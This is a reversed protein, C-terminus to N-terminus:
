NFRARKQNNMIDKKLQAIHGTMKQILAPEVPGKALQEVILFLDLLRKDEIMKQHRVFRSKMEMDSYSFATRNDEDIANLDVGSDLCKQLCSAIMKQYCSSVIDKKSKKVMDYLMCLEHFPIHGSVVTSANMGNKLFSDLIVDLNWCSIADQNDKFASQHQQCLNIFSGALDDNTYGGRTIIVDLCDPDYWKAKELYDDLVTKEQKAGEITVSYFDFGRDAMEELVRNYGLSAFVNVPSFGSVDGKEFSVMKRKMYSLVAGESNDKLENMEALQKSYISMETM